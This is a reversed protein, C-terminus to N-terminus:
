GTPGSVLVCINIERPLFKALFDKPAKKLLIVKAAYDRQDTKIDIRQARYVKGYSGSGIEERLKM